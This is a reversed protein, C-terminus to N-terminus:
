GFIAVYFSYSMFKGDSFSYRKSFIFLRGDFIHLRSNASYM